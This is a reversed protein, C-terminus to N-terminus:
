LTNMVILTTANETKASLKLSGNFTIGTPREFKDYKRSYDGGEFLQVGKPPFIQFLRGGGRHIVKGMGGTGQPIM